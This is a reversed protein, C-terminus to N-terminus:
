HILREATLGGAVLTLGLIFTLTALALLLLTAALTTTLCSTRRTM